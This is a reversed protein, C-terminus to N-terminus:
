SSQTTMAEQYSQVSVSIPTAEMITRYRCLVDYANILRKTIYTVHFIYYHSSYVAQKFLKKTLLDAHLPESDADM